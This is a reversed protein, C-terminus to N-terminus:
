QLQRNGMSRRLYEVTFVARGAAPLTPHALKVLHRIEVRFNSVSRQADRSLSLQWDRAQRTRIGYKTLLASFIAETTEGRGYVQAM